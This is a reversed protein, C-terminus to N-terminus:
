CRLGVHTLIPSRRGGTVPSFTRSRHGSRGGAAGGTVGGGVAAALDGALHHEGGRQLDDIGVPGVGQGHAAEGAGEAAVRHDEVPVRRVFRGQEVADGFGDEGLEGDVGGVGVPGGLQAGDGAAVPPERQGVRV